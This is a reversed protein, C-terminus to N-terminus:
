KYFMLCKGNLSAISSIFFYVVSPKLTTVKDKSKEIEAYDKQYQILDNTLDDLEKANFGKSDKNLVNIIGNLESALQSNIQQVRQILIQQQNPDPERIASSLAKSYEGKLFTFSKKFADLESNRSDQFNKVDM